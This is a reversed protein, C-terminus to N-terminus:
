DRHRSVRRSAADERVHEFFLLFVTSSEATDGNGIKSMAGSAFLTNMSLLREGPHLM